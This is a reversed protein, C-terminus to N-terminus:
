FALKPALHTQSLVKSYQILAQFFYDLHYLDHLIYLLYQFHVFTKTHILYHNETSDILKYITSFFFQLPIILLVQKNSLKYFFNKNKFKKKGSPSMSISIKNCTFFFLLKPTGLKTLTQTDTTQPHLPSQQHLQLDSPIFSTPAALYCQVELAGQVLVSM